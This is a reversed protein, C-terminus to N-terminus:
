SRLRPRLETAFMYRLHRHIKSFVMVTSYESIRQADVYEVSSNATRRACAKRIAVANANTMLGLAKM